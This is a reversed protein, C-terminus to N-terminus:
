ARFPMGLESLLERAEEDTKATTVITVNVGKIREVKDYDIEPFIIHEKIGLTYNGCGDFSEPSVGKFDRVRSLALNVLKDFFEYMRIGRLTVMCGVPTGKRLKFGAISKKAYTKVARQGAIQTLEEVAGDLLNPDDKIEGLGMNLVIKELRPVAFRNKYNLKKLLSPVVENKYRELLRSM